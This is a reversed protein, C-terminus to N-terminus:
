AKRPQIDSMGTYNEVFGLIESLQRAYLKLDFEDSRRATATRSVSACASM